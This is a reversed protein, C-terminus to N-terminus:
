PENSRRRGQAEANRYAITAGRATRGIGALLAAQAIDEGASTSCRYRRSHAQKRCEITGQSRAWDAVKELSAISNRPGPRIGWLHVINDGVVWTMADSIQTVTGSVVETSAMGFRKLGSHGDDRGAIPERGQNASAGLTQAAAGPQARVGGPNAGHPAAAASATTTPSVALSAAVTTPVEAPSPTGKGGGSPVVRGHDAESESIIEKPRQGLSYLGVGFFVGITAAAVLALCVLYVITGVRLEREAGRLRPASGPPTTEVVIDSLRDSKQPLGRIQAIFRWMRHRAPIPAASSRKPLDDLSPGVFPQDSM